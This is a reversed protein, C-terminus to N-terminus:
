IRSKHRKKTMNILYNYIKLQNKKWFVICYCQKIFVFINLSSNVSIEGSPPHPCDGSLLQFNAWEVGGGGGGGGGGSFIWGWYVGWEGGFTLEGRGGSFLM